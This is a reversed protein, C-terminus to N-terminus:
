SRAYGWEIDVEDILTRQTAWVVANVLLVAITGRTWWREYSPLFTFGLLILVSPVLVLYRFAFDIDTNKELVGLALAGFVAWQVAALILAARNSAISQRFYAARFDRELAPDDFSLSVSGM